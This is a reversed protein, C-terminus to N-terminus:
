SSYACFSNADMVSTDLFVAVALRKAENVESEADRERRESRAPASAMPPATAPAPRSGATARASVLGSSTLVIKVM